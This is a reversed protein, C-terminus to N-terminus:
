RALIAYWISSLETDRSNVVQERANHPFSYQLEHAISRSFYSGQSGVSHSPRQGM